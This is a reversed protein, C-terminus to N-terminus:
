VKWGECDMPRKWNAKVVQYGEFRMGDWMPVMVITNDNAEMDPYYRDLIKVMCDRVM